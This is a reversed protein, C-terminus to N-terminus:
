AQGYDYLITALQQRSVSDEKEASITTLLSDPLAYTGGSLRSLVTEVMSVTMTEYPSFIGPDTGNFLGAYTASMVEEFFWNDRNVDEYFDDYPQIGVTIQRYLSQYRNSGDTAAMGLVYDGNPLGSKVVSNTSYIYQNVGNDLVLNYADEATIDVYVDEGSDLVDNLSYDMDNTYVMGSTVAVTETSELTGLRKAQWTLDLYGEGAFYPTLREIRYTCATGDSASIHMENVVVDDKIEVILTIGQPDIVHEQKQMATSSFAEGTAGDTLIGGFNILYHDTDLYDIDSIYSSFASSGLEKGYQWVQEATMAEEDIAYRVGCSYTDNPDFSLDFEKTRYNGNDFLLIDGNDAVTIAHNGYFYEFDEGVPTLLKDAYAEAWDASPDALIWIVEGTDADFKVVADKMRGSALITNEAEDYYLANNHFWDNASRKLVTAWKADETANPNNVTQNNYIHLQWDPDSLCEMDSLIDKMDWDDVIEGTTRDLRVIYDEVTDGASAAVLLDGNSLELAEHHAGYILYENHVRGLMDFEFLSAATSEEEVATNSGSLLNGNALRKIPMTSISITTYWRVDGNHDFCYSGGGEMIAYTFGEAMLETNAVTVEAMPMTDPLPQTQIYVTKETVTGDTATFTITVVNNQNAYLGYIPLTHSETVTTFDHNVTSPEDKGQITVSVTGLQDTDFAILASLPSADYPNLVTLPNDLTYNGNQIISQLEASRDNHQEVLGTTEVVVVDQGIQLIYDTTTAYHTGNQTAVLTVTYTGDVLDQLNLHSHYFGATSDLVGQLEASVSAKQVMSANNELTYGLKEGTATHELVLTRDTVSQSVEGTVFGSIFLFDENASLDFIQATAPTEAYTMDVAKAGGNSLYNYVGQNTGLGQWPSYLTDLSLKEARYCSEDLNVAFVTEGAQNVEIVQMKDRLLVLGSTDINSFTDFNGLYTDSEPIYQTSGHVYSLGDTGLEQGYEWIQEVTQATEDIRYVVMRSYLEETPYDADPDLGRQMGNDFITIDMSGDDNESVLSVDHQSYFWQFDEGVPTLYKDQDGPCALQNDSLVWQVELDPYSLKAVANQNRMSVLIYGEGGDAITNLHLWDSSGNDRVEFSGQTSNFIYEWPRDYIAYTNDELNIAGNILLLEDGLLYGDHHTHISDLRLERYLYGTYDFEYITGFLSYAGSSVWIHGNEDVEDLVSGGTYIAFYGRIDGNVDILTRYVDKLMYLGDSLQTLD